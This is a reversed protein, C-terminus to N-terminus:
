VHARGIEHTESVEILENRDVQLNMTGKKITIIAKKEKAM